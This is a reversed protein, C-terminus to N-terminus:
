NGIEYYYNGISDKKYGIPLYKELKSEHGFPITYETLKLFLQKFEEKSM